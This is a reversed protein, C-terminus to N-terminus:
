RLRDHPAALEDLSVLAREGDLQGIVKCARQYLLVVQNGNIVSSSRCQIAVQNGNIVSSSRCQIAQHGGDDPARYPCPPPGSIVESQRQHDSIAETMLHEIRVHLRGTEPTLVLRVIFLQIRDLPIFIPVLYRGEQAHELQLDSPLSIAHQHCASPMSLAHQACASPLSIAPQTGSL